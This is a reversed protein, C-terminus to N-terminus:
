WAATSGCPVTLAIPQALVPGTRDQFLPWDSM